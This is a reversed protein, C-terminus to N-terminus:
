AATPVGKDTSHAFHLPKDPYGAVDGVAYIGSRDTECTQRDVVM